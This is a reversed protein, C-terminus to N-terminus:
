VRTKQQLLGRRAAIGLGLLLPAALFFTSPEPTATPSALSIVLNYNGTRSNGMEDVFTTGSGFDLTFGDSLNTATLSQGLLFDMLAVTYTGASLNSDTLYADFAEGTSPDIAAVPSTGPIVGTAINQGSANYLMLNPEFGGTAYSTTYITVNSTSPLTFNEELATAQNPLTGSITAPFLGSYTQTVAAAQLGPAIAGLAAAALSVYLTRTWIM